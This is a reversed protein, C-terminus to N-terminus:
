CTLCSNDNLKSGLITDFMQQQRAALTNVFNELTDQHSGVLELQRTIAELDTCGCCPKSCTDNLQLGNTIATIEICDNGILNFNGDTDPPVAEITRICDPIEHDTDCVCDANLGEGSIADFRIQPPQGSIIVPTLRINAGATLVVDGYIRESIDSGNRVTISTVGRLSPRVCDTDLRTDLYDFLYLGAPVDDLSDLKGIVIKGISDSFDGVGALTYPDYENHTKRAIAASAVDVISDDNLKAALTLNFGNALIALKRLFFNEARVNLGVHIPFYLGLIFNDPIYATRSVDARTSGDAFPYTRVSNHNLWELNFLLEPAEAM